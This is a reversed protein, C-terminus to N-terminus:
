KIQINLNDVVMWQANNSNINIEESEMFEICDEWVNEDYPYVLVKNTEFCLIIIKKMKNINQLVIM